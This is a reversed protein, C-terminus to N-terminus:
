KGGASKSRYNGHVWYGVVKGKADWEFRIPVGPLEDKRDVRFFDPTGTPKYISPRAGIPDNSPLSVLLLKGKWPLIATETGWEVQTDYLGTYGTLDLSTTQAVASAYTNLVKFIGESFKEPSGGAANIFVAVGYGTKPDLQVISRYDPCNGGHAM